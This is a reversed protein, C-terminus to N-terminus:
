VKKNSEIVVFFSLKIVLRFALLIKIALNISPNESCMYHKIIGM